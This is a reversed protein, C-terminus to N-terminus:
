MQRLLFFRWTGKPNTISLTFLFVIKKKIEARRINNSICHTVM